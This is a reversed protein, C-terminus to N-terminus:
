WENFSTNEIKKINQYIELDIPFKQIIDAGIELKGTNPYIIVVGLVRVTEGMLEEIAIMGERINVQILGTTDDVVIYKDSTDVSVCRGVIRIRESTESIDEIFIEIYPSRQVWGCELYQILNIM